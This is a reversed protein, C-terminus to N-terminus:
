GYALTGNALHSKIIDELIQGTYDKFQSDNVDFVDCTMKYILKNDIGNYQINGFVVSAGKYPGNIIVVKWAQENSVEPLTEIIYDVGESPKDINIM